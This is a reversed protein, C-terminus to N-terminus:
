GTSPQNKLTSGRADAAFIAKAFVAGLLYL